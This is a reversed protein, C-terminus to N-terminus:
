PPPQKSSVNIKKNYKLWRLWEYSKPCQQDDSLGVSTEPEGAKQRKEKWHSKFGGAIDAGEPLVARQDAVAEPITLIALILLVASLTLLLGRDEARRGIPNKWSM